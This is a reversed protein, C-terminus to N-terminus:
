NEKMQLTKLLKKNDFVKGGGLVVSNLPNETLYVKVKVEKEMLTPFDKIMSGGGTMVIGNDLIDAALEPPSKELVEKTASVISDLAPKIAEYIENSNIELSVPTQVDLQRGKIIMTKPVDEPIATGLEKKIKEATRDGILLNHKNRVYRVIDEDFKNGAIRISKSAIVEDLSLIAVDTSGGGIDIVMNGSPKSIDIGSGIIAARGEEIIYIKKAGPVSDFLAKREVPTVELPVCIMVEPKFISSGYINDMFMSIMERTADLDAIVGDKLPKIAEISEPTKGLMERAEKGVAIVKGTKKDRALVSPENLVIRNEQKDYILINATGLDISISKNVRFSRVVRRIYQKIKM